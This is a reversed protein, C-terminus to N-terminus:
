PKRRRRITRRIPKRRTPKRTTKRVGSSPHTAAASGNPNLSVPSMAEMKNNRGTKGHVGIIFQGDGGLTTERGGQGGIHPGEYKDNIDLENGSIRMFIPKFADFGGGGRIYIAGVAYGPRAKVVEIKAGREPVGYVGGLAEGASTRYIPQVVGPYRGNRTTTYKFGILIAGGQPIEEFTERSFGGGVIRWKQFKKAAILRRIEAWMSRSGGVAAVAPQLEAIRNEAKVKQLSTLMPLAQLYWHHARVQMAPRRDKVESKALDYWADAAALQATADGALAKLDRLAASKLKENSGKALLPVGADWDIKYLCLFRGVALNAAPDDPKSKLLALDDLIKDAEANLRSIHRARVRTNKLLQFDKSKRAAIEAHRALSVAAAWENEDCAHGAASLLLIAVDRSSRPSKASGVLPSAIEAWVKGRSVKFSSSTQDAAKMATAADGAKAALERAEELLAFRAPPDGKSKEAQELLKVALAAQDKAAPRAYEKKFLDKILKRAEAVSKAAPVDARDDSPPAAIASRGVALVILGALVRSFAQRM